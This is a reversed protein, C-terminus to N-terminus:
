LWFAVPYELVSRSIAEPLYYYRFRRSKGTTLAGEKDYKLSFTTLRFLSHSPQSVNQEELKCDMADSVRNEDCKVSRDDVFRHDTEDSMNDAWKDKFSIGEVLCFKSNDGGMHVLTAGVHREALDQSFLKEKSVKLGQCRWTGDSDAHVVDCSCLHGITGHGRSLGVWADLEYDFYARGTFPLVWEGQQKWGCGDSRIVDEATDFSFTAVSSSEQISVFITLGDPHVAYSVVDNRQFPPGPLKFWTWGIPPGDPKARQPPYLLLFSHVDLSFLRGGVAFYIPEVPHPMPRPGLVISRIRVDFMPLLSSPLMTPTGSNITPAVPHGVIIKSDFAGAFFLPSARQAEVHSLPPPLLLIGTSRITGQIQKDPKDSDSKLDVERISYGWSWDDLLLYLHRRHDVGRESASWGAMSAREVSSGTM